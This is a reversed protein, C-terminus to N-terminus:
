FGKNKLFDGFIEASFHNIYLCNENVMTNSFYLMSASNDGSNLSMNVPNIELFSKAGM